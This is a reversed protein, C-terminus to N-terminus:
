HDTYKNPSDSTLHLNKFIQANDLNQIREELVHLVELLESSSHVLYEFHIKAQERESDTVDKKNFTLIKHLISRKEPLVFFIHYISAYTDHLRDHHEEIRSSINDIGKLQSILFSYENWWKGFICSSSDLPIYEKDLELTVKEGRFGNIGNVLRDARRVWEKHARRADWIQKLISAKDLEKGM